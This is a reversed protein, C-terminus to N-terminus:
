TGVYAIGLGALAEPAAQAAKQKVGRPHAAHDWTSLIRKAEAEKISGTGIGVQTAALMAEEGILRPLMAHYARLLGVPVRM